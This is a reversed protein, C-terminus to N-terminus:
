QRLHGPHARPSGAPVDFCFAGRAKLRPARAMPLAHRIRRNGLRADRIVRRFEVRPSCPVTLMIESEQIIAPLGDSLEIDNGAKIKLCTTSDPQHCLLLSEEHIFAPPNQDARDRSPPIIRCRHGVRFIVNLAM